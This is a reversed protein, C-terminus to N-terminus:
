ATVAINALISAALEEDGEIKLRDSVGDARVRGCTLRLFTEWDLTLTVAPGLSVSGDISIVGEGSVRVTRMFEQEGHM